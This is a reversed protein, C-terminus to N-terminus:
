NSNLEILKLLKLGENILHMNEIEGEYYNFLVADEFFGTEQNHNWCPVYGRPTFGLRELVKQHSPTYASAFLECYRIHKEKMLVRIEEVFAYFEEANKVQYEAKELNHLHITHLIKFYSDSDKFSLTITEYGFEVSSETRLLQASSNRIKNLDLKLNAISITFKGLKYLQWAHLFVNVVSPILRPLEPTRFHTLAKERYIVGIVDSEVKEYFIDKNPLIGVTKIGCVATMYQSTSHATRNECYWVLIKDSFTTWMWVYSGVIAKVVDLIKQYQKRLMFGGMYGKKHEFDLACRFCGMTTGWPDKFLIFHHNPSKLMSEVTEEDMMERYPYNGEYVEKCISILEKADQPIAVKLIPSLRHNRGNGSKLEFTLPMGSNYIRSLNLKNYFIQLFQDIYHPYLEEYRIIVPSSLALFLRTRLM